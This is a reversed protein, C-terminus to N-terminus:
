TGVRIARRVTRKKRQEVTVGLRVDASASRARRLARRQRPDLAMWVLRPQGAVVQSRSSRARGSAKAPRGVRLRARTDLSCRRTCVALVSPARGERLLTRRSLRAPAWARMGPPTKLEVVRGTTGLARRIAADAPETASSSGGGSGPVGPLGIPLLPTLLEPAWQSPSWVPAPPTVNVDVDITQSAGRGDTIRVRVCDYGVYGPDPVYPVRIRTQGYPAPSAIAAAATGHRPADVVEARLDDGDDDSCALEVVGPTGVTIVAGSWGCSMGRNDDVPVVAIRATPGAGRAGTSGVAFEDEGTGPAPVYTADVWREGGVYSSWPPGVDFGTLVGGAPARRLGPTHADGDADTCIIGFRRPRGARSRVVQRGDPSWSWSSLSCEPLRDVDPGVTAELEGPGSRAGLEDTARVAATQTGVAITTRYSWNSLSEGAPVAEPDQHLGPGEGAVVFPDGDPDYCHPQLLFWVPTRGDSRRTARDGTCVPAANQADPQVNVRLRGTTTGEQGDVALVIEGTGEAGPAIRVDLRVGPWYAEPTSATVWSPAGLVRAGTANTCRLSVRRTRGQRVPSSGTTETAECRPVGCGGPGCEAEATPTPGLAASSLLAVAAVLVSLVLPRLM